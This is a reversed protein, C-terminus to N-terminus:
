ADGLQTALELFGVEAKIGKQQQAVSKGVEARGVISTAPVLVGVL